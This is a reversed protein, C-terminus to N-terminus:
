SSVEVWRRSEASRRAAECVRLVAMGDHGTQASGDGTLISQILTEHQSQGMSRGPLEPVIWGSDPSSTSTYALQEGTRPACLFIAGETGFIEAEFRVTGIQAWQVEHSVVAGSSLEYHMWASVEKGLLIRDEQPSSDMEAPASQSDGEDFKASLEVIEQRTLGRILDIGHAGIDM